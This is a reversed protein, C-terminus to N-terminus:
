LPDGSFDAVGFVMYNFHLPAAEDRHVISMSSRKWVFDDWDWLSDEGQVVVYSGRRLKASTSTSSFDLGLSFQFVQLNQARKVVGSVVSEALKSFPKLAPQVSALLSLGNKFTDNNLASLVFEDASSRVNVTRGELALGDNGVNVGVFLPKGSIAASSKDQVDTTLAFRMEESAQTAQNKGAFECLVQHTGLGPYSEVYFKDLTIKVRKGKLSVDGTMSTADQINVMEGSTEEPIYGLIAGTYAYQDLNFIKAALGQGSAGKQAFRQAAEEDGISRLYHAIEHAPLNGISDSNDFFPM